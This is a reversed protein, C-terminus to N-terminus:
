LRARTSRLMICDMEIVRLQDHERTVPVFDVVGFGKSMFRCLTETVGPMGSYLKRFAVETQLALIGPLVAEAGELAELDCGQTDLNLYIRPSEVGKLCEGLVCDLRRMPVIETTAVRNASRFRPEGAPDPKLSPALIQPSRSM